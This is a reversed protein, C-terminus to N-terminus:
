EALKTEAGKKPVFPLLTLSILALVTLVLMANSYRADPLAFGLWSPTGISQLEVSTMSVAVGFGGSVFFVTLFLGMAVSALRLPMIKSISSQLPTQLIAFGVGYLGMGIGVYLPSTGAFFASVLNGGIVLLVGATVPIRPGYLDAFRGAPQALLAVVIAGPLLVLAIKSPPLHNVEALLIPVLVITGFRTANVLAAILVCSIYRIDKMVDPSIFPNKKRLIWISFLILFFTAIALYVIYGNSHFGHVQLSNFGFFFIGISIGLLFAGFADFKKAHPENLSKPLIKIALPVLLIVGGTSAFVARWSIFETLYGGVFPGISAALGATSMIVGMAAGRRSEPVVEVIITSGVSPLAAAFAGQIFRLAITVGIADSIALLISVIGLLAMGIIYVRRRGFIDALRGNIVNFVGFTIAYGTVLWSAIGESVNFYHKITPLSVNIMSANIVSAFVVSGVLLLILKEEARTLSPRTYALHNTQSDNPVEAVNM